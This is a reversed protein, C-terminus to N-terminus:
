IDVGCYPCFNSDSDIKKGCTDCVFTISTKVKEKVPRLFDVCSCANNELELGCYKCYKEKM